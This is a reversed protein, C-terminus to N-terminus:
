DRFIAEVRSPLVVDHENDKFEDGVILYRGCLSPLTYMSLKPIIRGPGM